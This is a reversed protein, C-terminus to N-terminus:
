EGACRFGISNVRSTPENGSRDSARVYQVDNFWSGGRLGKMGTDKQWGKPNEVEALEYSKPEYWDRVWEWVNGLMDYLGYANPDKGKVVHTKSESNKSFWAIADLEAAYTSSKLGGRAAYEWQAETPLDMGIVKCFAQSDYWTVNDVPLLDGKFYSPNTKVKFARPDKKLAWEYDKQTVETEGMWFESMTITKAPFEDDSCEPHEVKTGECGRRFSGGPIFVEVRGGRTRTRPGESTVKVPVPPPPAPPFKARVMERVQAREADDKLETSAVLAGELKWGFMETWPFTLRCSKLADRLGEGIPNRGAMELIKNELCDRANEQGAAVALTLTLLLLRIRM